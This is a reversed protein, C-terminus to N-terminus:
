LIGFALIFCLFAFKVTLSEGTKYCIYDIRKGNPNARLLMPSTYSNGATDNTNISEPQFCNYIM